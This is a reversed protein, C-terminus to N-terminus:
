KNKNRLYNRANYVLTGLAIAYIIWKEIDTIGKAKYGIYFLFPAIFFVDLLRVEQSKSYELITSEEKM